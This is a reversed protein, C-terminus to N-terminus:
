HPQRVVSCIAPPRCSSCTRTAPGAAVLEAHTGDEVVRGAELVLIRDAMRVTPFATRSSSRRGGPPSRASASSSPTSPRPTWRRPRSTSCWSTPRRACSRARSRSRRGSAARSSSAARSGAGSSRTSARAALTAVLEKAGGQEVARGVRPEDELHEVSGFAVNERLTLQYQNFDQFIVGIRARLERRTGPRASRARRAARAGRDARLPAALLKIFTTKGAGNEGVLALSQGQPHLPRRRAAGVARGSRRARRRRRPYRFGVGEFRIGEEPGCSRWGARAATARRGTPIAFYEFLNSM